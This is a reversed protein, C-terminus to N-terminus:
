KGFLATGGLGRQRVRPRLPKNTQHQLREADGVPVMGPLMEQQEALVPERRPEVELALISTRNVYLRDGAFGLTVPVDVVLRALRGLEGGSVEVTKTWRGEAPIEVAVLPTVVRLGGDCPELVMCDHCGWEQEAAWKLFHDTADALDKGAVVIECEARM